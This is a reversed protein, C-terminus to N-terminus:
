PVTSLIRTIGAITTFDESFIHEDQLKVGFTAEVFAILEVAGVSDVYGAEFLHSDRSFGNDTIRFHDRIFAELVDIVELQSIAM